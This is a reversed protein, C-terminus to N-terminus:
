CMGSVFIIGTSLCSLTAFSAVTPKTNTQFTLRNGVRDASYTMAKHTIWDRATKKETKEKRGGGRGGGVRTRDRVTETETQRDTQRDRHIRKVEM